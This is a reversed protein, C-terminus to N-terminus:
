LPLTVSNLIAKGSWKLNDLGYNCPSHITGDAKPVGTTHLTAVWANIKAQSTSGWDTLLYTQSNTQGNYVHFVTDLGREEMYSQTSNVWSTLM